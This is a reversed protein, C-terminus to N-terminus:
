HGVKLEEIDTLGPKTGVGALFEVIPSQSSYFPIGYDCLHDLYSPITVNAFVAAVSLPNNTTDLPPLYGLLNFVNFVVRTYNSLAPLGELSAMLVGNIYLQATRSYDTDQQENQFEIRYTNPFLLDISPIERNVFLPQGLLTGDRAWMVIRQPLTTTRNSFEKYIQIGFGSFIPLDGFDFDPVGPEFKAVTNSLPGTDIFLVSTVSNMEFGPHGAAALIDVQFTGGRSLDVHTQYVGSTLISTIRDREATIQIGQPYTSVSVQEENYMVTAAAYGILDPSSLTDWEPDLNSLEFSTTNPCPSNTTVGPTTPPLKAHAFVAKLMSLDSQYVLDTDWEPGDKVSGPIPVLDDLLIPQSYARGTVGALNTAMVVAVYSQNSELTVGTLHAQLDTGVNVVGISVVIGTVNENEGCVSQPFIGVEYFDIGSEGDHFPEWEVTFSSDPPVYIVFDSNLRQSQVPGLTVSLPSSNIITPPTQDITVGRPTTTTICKKAQDIVRLSLYYTINHQLDLDTISVITDVEVNRFGSVEFWDEFSSTTNSCFEELQSSNFFRTGLAWEYQRIPLSSQFDSWYAKLTESDAQFRPITIHGPLISHGLGAIIGNSHSEVYAGSVAYARVTIFYTVLEPVLNLGGFTHTTNLGVMTFPAINTRTSPFELNSGAAVEYYAIKQEPLGNGFENWCAWLTTVSEQYNLDQEPIPGDRVIGPILGQTTVSTGNSRLIHVEGTYDTVQVLIRYTEDNFLLLQDSFVHFTNEIPNQFQNIDLYVYPQTLNGDVSEVAWRGERIPCNVGLHFIAGMEITSIQYDIDSGFETGDYIWNWELTLGSKIFVVNSTLVTVLHARNLVRITFYIGRRGVATFSIPTLRHYLTTVIEGNSPLPVPNIVEFRLVDDNGPFYGVGLEFNFVSGSETDQPADFLISVIDTDLLCVASEAGSSLNTLVGMIYDAVKFNPRIFVGGSIIPPSIDFYIPNSITIAEQNVGNTSFLTVYYPVTPSVIHFVPSIFDNLCTGELITRSMVSQDTQSTGIAIAYQQIGSEPDMIGDWHCVIHGTNNSVFPSRDVGWQPLPM